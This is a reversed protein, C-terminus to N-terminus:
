RKGGKERYEQLRKAIRVLDQDMEDETKAANLVANVQKEYDFFDKFKTFQYTGDENVANVSRNAWAQEHMLLQQDVLNLSHAQMRLNYEIITMQEIEQMNTM